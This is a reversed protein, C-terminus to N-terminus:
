IAAKEHKANGEEKHVYEKLANGGVVDLELHVCSAITFLKVEDIVM